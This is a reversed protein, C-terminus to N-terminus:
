RKKFVALAYPKLQRKAVLNACIPKLKEFDEELLDGPKESTAMWYLFGRLMSSFAADEGKKAKYGSKELQKNAALIIDDYDLYKVTNIFHDFNYNSM